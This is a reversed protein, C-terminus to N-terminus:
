GRNVMELLRWREGIASCKTMHSKSCTGGDVEVSSLNSDVDQGDQSIRVYQGRIMLSVMLIGFCERIM